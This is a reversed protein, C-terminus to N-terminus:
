MREFGGAAANLQAFRARDDDISSIGDSAANFAETAAQAGQYTLCHAVSM